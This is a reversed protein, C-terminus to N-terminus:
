GRMAAQEYEEDMSLTIPKWGQLTSFEYCEGSDALFGVIRGGCTVIWGAGWGTVDKFGVDAGTWISSAERVAQTYNM